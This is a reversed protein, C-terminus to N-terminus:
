EKKLHLGIKTCLVGLIMNRSTKQKKQCGEWGKVQNCLPSIIMEFINKQIKMQLAVQPHDKRIGSVQEGVNQEGSIQEKVKTGYYLDGPSKIGSLQVWVKTRQVNVQVNTRQINSRLINTRQVNNRSTQEKSIQERSVHEGYVQEGSMPEPCKNEPCKNEPCKNKANRLRLSKLFGKLAILGQILSAKANSLMLM